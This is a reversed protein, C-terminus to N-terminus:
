LINIIAIRGFQLAFFLVLISVDLAVAGLRIPPILKRLAKVPPDTVIFISEALRNFWSPAQYNRSFTVIMEILIRAILILLYIDIAIVLFTKLTEM